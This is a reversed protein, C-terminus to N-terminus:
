ITSVFDRIKGSPERPISDVLEFEVRMNEGFTQKCRDNLYKKAEAGFTNDPVIYFELRDLERQFVKFQIVGGHREELGKMIYYLIISHWRRGDNAKIVDSVRGVINKILPLERGCSCRDLSSIGLDGIRYRIFPLAYNDLNTVIIEKLGQNGLNEVPDVFEVICCDSMLHQSGKDCQFAILGTEAAGYESVLPCGFVSEILERDIDRITESTCKVMRLKYEYGNQGTEKLYKAFQYVMSTYGMLYVPKYRKMRLHFDDLVEETINYERERFRNLVIDRILTKYRAGKNVPIGWLRAEKAGPDIGHWRHGRYMAALQVASSSLSKPFHLAVGTSGSTKAQEIAEKPGNSVFQNMNERLFAKDIIPLISMNELNIDSPQYHHEKFWNKYFPVSESCYNLLRSLKQRQYERLQEYSWWQSKELFKMSQWLPQRRFFAINRLVFKALLENM